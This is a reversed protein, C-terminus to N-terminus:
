TKSAMAELAAPDSEISRDKPLTMILSRVRYLDGHLAPEPPVGRELDRALQLLRRRTAIVGLDTTGLHERTRDCVAGMSEQVALDQESAGPIGTYTLKKQANRDILYDNRANAVTRYTGPLLTPYSIGAAGRRAGAPGEGTRSGSWDSGTKSGRRQEESLPKSPSCIFKWAWATEDDIPIAAIVSINGGPVAPVMAYTPALLQTLRWLYGQEYAERRTAVLVGYDTDVTSFHPSKDMLKLVDDQRRGGKETEFDLWSHLFANHSGDVSGEIVQLYNGEVVYKGVVRHEDPVRAWELQPLEPVSDAPGMYLWIVGGWERAPYATAKIKHKFNSEAPENPMDVCTGTTDFKWGHYVCRLGAEENRGFFMSAGRHPCAQAMVGVKGTSDRWAVLDEGLQRFRIPACDPEPLEEPLLAPLWFRRFLNGMPTGPGTRTIYENDNRSLM